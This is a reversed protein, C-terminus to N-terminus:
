IIAYEFDFCGFHILNHEIENIYYKIGELQRDSVDVIEIFVKYFNNINGLKFDHVGYFTLEIKKDGECFPCTSIVLTLDYQKTSEIGMERNINISQIYGSERILNQIKILKDNM